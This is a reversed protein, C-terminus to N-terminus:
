MDPILVDDFHLISVIILSLEGGKGSLQNNPQM